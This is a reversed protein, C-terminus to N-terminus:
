PIRLAGYKISNRGACPGVGCTRGVNTMLRKRKTSGLPMLALGSRFDLWAM